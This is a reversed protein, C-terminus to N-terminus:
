LKKLVCKRFHVNFKYYHRALSTLSFCLESLISLIVTVTLCNQALILFNGSNEAVKTTNLIERVM